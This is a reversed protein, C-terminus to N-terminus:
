EAVPAAEAGPAPESESEAEAQTEVEVPPATTATHDITEVTMEEEVLPVEESKVYDLIRDLVKRELIQSALAEGLGDKEIRARVRRPSEDSRAALVEIEDLLDQEEVKIDEAEAIHALIFYERLARVTSELANARIEAERARIERDNLGQQKMQMVLRQITTKEQRIIMDTPLEFSTQEILKDMIERRMAERQQSKFRRELMDHLASRLEERSEFGISDLFAANIEPLRMRKLDHVTFTVQLTKGRVSPDPSGSGIEVDSTRSEGAKIGALVTGVNRAIGDQFRLDPQLRFQIEKVENTVTGENLFTMDATLFDGIEAGGDLKPVMQGYRELFLLLQADVDAESLTKVPRNVTLAKYAPLTFEPRVEIEIEFRLPGHEPVTIAAVDLNPQTIPNLKYEDDLQELAAMLLKSKVQESVEKRFRKEILSRPAHGPRFGRVTAERKMTGLSEEFQRAVEEEAIAVEVHKKCPGVDRIQVDLDLRTKVAEPEGASPEHGHEHEHEHEDATTVPTESANEGTSM